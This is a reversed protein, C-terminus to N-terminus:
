THRCPHNSPMLDTCRASRTTRRNGIERPSRNAMAILISLGFQLRCDFFGGEGSHPVAKMGAVLRLVCGFAVGIPFSNAFCDLRVISVVEM